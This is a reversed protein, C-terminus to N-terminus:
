GNNMVVVVVMKLNHQMINIQTDEVLETLLHTPCLETVKKWQENWEKTGLTSYDLKGVEDLFEQTPLSCKFINCKIEKEDSM